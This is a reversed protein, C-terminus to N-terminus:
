SKALPESRTKAYNHLNAVFTERDDTMADGFARALEKVEIKQPCNKCFNRAINLNEKYRAHSSYGLYRKARQHRGVKNYFQALKRYHESAMGDKKEIAMHLCYMASYTEGTAEFSKSAEVWKGNRRQERALSILYAKADTAKTVSDVPPHVAQFYTDLPAAQTGGSIEGSHQLFMKVVDEARNCIGSINM